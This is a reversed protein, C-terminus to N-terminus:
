KKKYKLVKGFGITKAEFRLTFRGMDEMDTYKEACIDIRTTMIMEGRCLSKLYKSPKVEGEKEIIGKIKSVTCEEVISHMHMVCKFGESILMKSPLDLFNVEAEFTNFVPVPQEPDCLVSGRPFVSEDEIGKLKIKINEGCPAYPILNDEANYIMSVETPIRQPMLVLKTGMKIKGSLVKVFL